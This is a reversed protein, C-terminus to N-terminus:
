EIGNNVRTMTSQMPCSCVAHEEGKVSEGDFSEGKNKNLFFFFSYKYEVKIKTDTLIVDEVFSCPNSSASFSIISM